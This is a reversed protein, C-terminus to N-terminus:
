ESQYTTRTLISRGLTLEDAYELEGGFSVGRAITSIKIDKGKLQKSIYFITTDGEITPSIAMIIEKAEGKEIRELLGDITLDFPSVGEIPSIVGGLVHYLGRFQGTDEIAMLDRINEVVCIVSSDRHKNTCISCVENDSINHCQQCTKINKRMNLIANAFDESKDVDQKILHLVLRLATKKGIGPLSAFAEVAEEILKSSFNM